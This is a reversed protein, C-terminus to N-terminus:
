VHVISCNNCLPLPCPVPVAVVAVPKEAIRVRSAGSYFCEEWSRGNGPQGRVSLAALGARNAVMIKAGIRRAVNQGDGRPVTERGGRLLQSRSRGAQPGRVHYALPAPRRQLPAPADSHGQAASWTQFPAATVPPPGAIVGMRNQLSGVASFRFFISGM